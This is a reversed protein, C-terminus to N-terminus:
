KHFFFHRMFARSSKLFQINFHYWLSDAISVAYDKQDIFIVSEINDASIDMAERAVLIKGVVIPASRKLMDASGFLTVSRFLLWQFDEHDYFLPKVVVIPLLPEELLSGLYLLVWVFCQSPLNSEQM